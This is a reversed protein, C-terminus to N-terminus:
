RQLSNLVSELRSILEAQEPDRKLKQIQSFRILDNDKLGIDSLLNPQSHFRVVWGKSDRFLSVDKQLEPIAHEMAEVQEQSVDFNLVAKIDTEEETEAVPVDNSKTQGVVSLTQSKLQEMELPKKEKVIKTRKTKSTKLDDEPSNTSETVSRFLM